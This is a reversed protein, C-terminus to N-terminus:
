WKAQALRLGWLEEKPTGKGFGVADAAVWAGQLEAKQEANLKQRPGGAEALVPSLPLVVFAYERM